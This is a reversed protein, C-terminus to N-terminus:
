WKGTPIKFFFDTDILVSARAIGEVTILEFLKRPSPSPTFELAIYNEETPNIAVKVEEPQSSLLASSLTRAYRFDIYTTM